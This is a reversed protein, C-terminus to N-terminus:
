KKDDAKREMKFEEKLKRLERAEKRIEAKMWQTEMYAVFTLSLVVVLAALVALHALFVGTSSNPKKGAM